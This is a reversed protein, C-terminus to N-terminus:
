RILGSLGNPGSPVYLGSLVDFGYLGHLSTLGELESLGNISRSWVLQSLCSPLGVPSENAEGIGGTLRMFHGDAAIQLESFAMRVVAGM